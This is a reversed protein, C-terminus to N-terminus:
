GVARTECATAHKERTTHREAARDVEAWTGEPPQWGGFVIRDPHPPSPANDLDGAQPGTLRRAAAEAAQARQRSERLLGFTIM